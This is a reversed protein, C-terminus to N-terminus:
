GMQRNKHSHRTRAHQERAINNLLASSFMELTILIYVAKTPSLSLTLVVRLFIKVQHPARDPRLHIRQVTGGIVTMKFTLFFDDIYNKIM